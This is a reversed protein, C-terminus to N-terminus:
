DWQPFSDLRDADDWHQQGHGIFLADIKNGYTEAVQRMGQTDYEGDLGYHVSGIIIDAKGDLEKLIKGTEEMPTTFTMRDIAEQDLASAQVEWQERSQRFKELAAQFRRYEFPKVLYDVVGRLFM